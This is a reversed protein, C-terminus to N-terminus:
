EALADPQGLFSYYRSTVYNPVFLRIASSRIKEFMNVIDALLANHYVNPIKTRGAIFLQGKRFDGGCGDAIIFMPNSNSGDHSDSADNSFPGKSGILIATDDYISQTPSFPDQVGRLATLLNAAHSVFYTKFQALMVTLPDSSAGTCHHTVGDHWNNIYASNELDPMVRILENSPDSKDSMKYAAFRTIDCAMAQTILKIFSQAYAPAKAPDLNGNDPGTNPSPLRM